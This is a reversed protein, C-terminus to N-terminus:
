EDSVGRMVWRIGFGLIAVYLAASGVVFDRVAWDLDPCNIDCMYGPGFWLFISFLPLLGYFWIAPLLVGAALVAALRKERSM